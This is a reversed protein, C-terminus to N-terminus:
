LIIFSAVIGRRGINTGDDPLGIIVVVVAAVNRTQLDATIASGMTGRGTGLRLRTVVGIDALPHFHEMRMDGCGHNRRMM